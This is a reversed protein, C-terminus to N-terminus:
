RPVRNPGASPLRSNGGEKEISFQVHFGGGEFVYGSNFSLVYATVNDGVGIYYRSSRCISIVEGIACERLPLHENLLSLLPDISRPNSTLVKDLETVFHHLKTSCDSSPYGSPSSVGSQTANGASYNQIQTEVFLVLAALTILFPTKHRIV